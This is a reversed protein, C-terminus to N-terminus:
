SSVETEAADEPEDGGVTEEIGPVADTDTGADAAPMNGYLRLALLVVLALLVAAIGGALAKVRRSARKDDEARYDSPVLDDYYGDYGNEDVYRWENGCHPCREAKEEPLPKGCYYCKLM